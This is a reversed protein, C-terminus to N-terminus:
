RRRKRKLRKREQARRVHQQVPVVHIKRPRLMPKAPPSTPQPTEVVPSHREVAPTPSTRTRKRVTTPTPTPAPTPAPSTAPVDFPHILEPTADLESTTEETPKCLERGLRGLGAAQYLRTDDPLRETLPATRHLLPRLEHWILRIGAALEGADLLVAVRELDARCLRTILEPIDHEVRSDAQWYVQCPDRRTHALAFHEPFSEELLRDLEQPGQLTERLLYRYRKQTRQELVYDSVHADAQMGGLSPVLRHAQTISRTPFLAM